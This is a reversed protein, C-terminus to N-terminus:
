ESGLANQKQSRHCVGDSLRLTALHILVDARDGKRDTQGECSAGEGCGVGERGVVGAVLDSDTELGVGVDVGEAVDIRRRRHDGILGLSDARHRMEEARRRLLDQHALVALVVRELLSGDLGADGAGFADGLSFHDHHGLQGCHEAHVVDVLVADVAAQHGAFFARDTAQGVVVLQQGADAGVDHGPRCTVLQLRDGAVDVLSQGSRWHPHFRFCTVRVQETPVSEFDTGM